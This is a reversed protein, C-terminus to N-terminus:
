LFWHREGLGRQHLEPEVANRALQM